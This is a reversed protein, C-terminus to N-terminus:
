KILRRAERATQTPVFVWLPGDRWGRGRRAWRCQLRQSLLVGCPARRAARRHHERSIVRYIVQALLFFPLPTTLRPVEFSVMRSVKPHVGRHDAARLPDDTRGHSSPYHPIRVDAHFMIGLPVSFM